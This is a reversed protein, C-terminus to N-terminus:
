SLIVVRHSVTGTQNPVKKTDTATVKEDALVPSRDSCIKPRIITAATPLAMAVPVLTKPARKKAMNNIGM